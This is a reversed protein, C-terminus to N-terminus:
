PVSSNWTGAPRRWNTDTAHSGVLRFHEDLIDTTAHWVPEDNQDRYWYCQAPMLHAPFFGDHEEGLSSFGVTYYAGHTDIVTCYTSGPGPVTVISHQVTITHSM